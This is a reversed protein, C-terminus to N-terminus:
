RSESWVGETGPPGPAAAGAETVNLAACVAVGGWFFNRSGDAGTGMSGTIFLFPRHTLIHSKLSTPVDSQSTLGSLCCIPGVHWLCTGVNLSNQCVRLVSEAAGRYVPNKNFYSCKPLTNYFIKVKKNRIHNSLAIKACIFRTVRRRRPSNNNIMLKECVVAKLWSRYFRFFWGTAFM